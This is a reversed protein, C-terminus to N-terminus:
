VPRVAANLGGLELAAQVERAQELPTAILSAVYDTAPAHLLEHPTGVQLLRGAHMVAVRDCLLFAEVVDHTVFLGTLGLQKRIGLVSQQLRARVLPDLAGFPEDFLMLKPEAALARAVGIRQQQGGSLELPKRDRYTAAPLEVMELLADVRADIRKQKWGLLRCTIGINQAVSMHPFLGVRQFCYGISRRLLHAPQQRIEQGDIFIEGASPEELRNIMQLTTSKGSGSGGLLAVFEGAEVTLSLDDVATTAAFRKSLHSLHIM